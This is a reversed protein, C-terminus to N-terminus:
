STTCWDTSVNFSTMLLPFVRATLSIGAQRYSPYRFNTMFINVIKSLNSCQGKLVRVFYTCEVFQQWKTWIYVCPMSIDRLRLISNCDITVFDGYILKNEKTVTDTGSSHPRNINCFSNWSFFCSLKLVMILASDLATEWQSPAFRSDAGIIMVTIEGHIAVLYDEGTQAQCCISKCLTM